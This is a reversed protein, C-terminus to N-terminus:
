FPTSLDCEPQSFLRLNHLINAQKGMYVVDERVTWFIAFPPPGILPTVHILYISSIVM